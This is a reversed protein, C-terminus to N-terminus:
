TPHSVRVAVDVKALCPHRSILNQTVNNKLKPPLVFVNGTNSQLLRMNQCSVTSFKVSSYNASKTLSSSFSHTM